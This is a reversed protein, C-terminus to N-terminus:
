VDLGVLNTLCDFNRIDAAFDDGCYDVVPIFHPLMLQPTHLLFDIFKIYNRLFSVVM